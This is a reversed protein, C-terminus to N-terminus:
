GSLDVDDEVKHTTENEAANDSQKELAAPTGNGNPAAPTERTEGMRRLRPVETMPADDADIVPVIPTEATRNPQSQPMEPPREPPTAETVPPLPNQLPTEARTRVRAIAESYNIRPHFVAQLMEVFINQITKLDSITIGSEDLQGSKRRDEIVQQVIEEIEQRNKPQHSRVSAECGDALMLIATERSRPKPGPYQFDHIDVSSEDDGALIIAQRYFVFVAMTGHHERIFDRIRDPLHYQRALDDGDTVHRIIIDASRYPDNLIDHPNSIDTQNETFFAPNLMKGIDHYLAATHTLEANAGIANAAQEALNAVQLTHQYTGPAERLLRQLLPQNPQSLEVLKLATPLNFFLTVIYMGAIAAAATLIGNLFCYVILLALRATNNLNSTDLNFIMAVAISMVAVMLGAYFFSNLREARKLTLAGIIGSSTVLTAIELSNNAMMGVLLGLGLVGIIAVEPGIITVYLLALAATPYIYIQGSLGLRAGLLVILFIAALLALYRPQNYILDPWFRLMYLGAIVMVCFSALVASIIEQLRRDSLRLLGLQQLAEYDVTDLQRGASVVLQGREFGRRVEPVAEVAEQRAADTAATNPVSNVRLLDSVIAVIVASDEENFRVSVQTPLGARVEELNDERIPDRMVRELVSVIQDDIERWTEADIELLRETIPEELQLERVQNIDRIRQESTAYPDRRINDIYDLIDSALQTRQSTITRNPPDFIPSVADAAAQRRQQTLVTSLYSVTQPAYINVPAIDGVQLSAVENLGPFIRDFAVIVTALLVFLLAASVVVVQSLGKVAREYRVNFYRELLRATRVIM